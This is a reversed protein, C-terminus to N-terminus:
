YWCLNAMFCFFYWLLSGGADTGKSTSAGKIIFLLLLMLLLLLLSALLALIFTTIGEEISLLSTSIRTFSDICDSEKDSNLLLNVEMTFDLDDLKDSGTWSDGSVGFFFLGTL